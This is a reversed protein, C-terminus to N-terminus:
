LSVLASLTFHMHGAQDEMSTDLWSLCLLLIIGAVCCPARLVMVSCESTCIAPGGKVSVLKPLALAVGLETQWQCISVPPRFWTSFYVFLYFAFLCSFSLSLLLFPSPFACPASRQEECLEWLQFRRSLVCTMWTGVSLCTQPQLQATPLNQIFSLIAESQGKWRRKLQQIM